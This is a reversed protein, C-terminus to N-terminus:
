YGRCAGGRRPKRGSKEVRTVLKGRINILSKLQASDSAGENVSPAKEKQHAM